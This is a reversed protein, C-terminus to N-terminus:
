HPTRHAPVEHSTPDLAGARWLARRPEVIASGSVDSRKGSHRWAWRAHESLVTTSPVRWDSELNMAPSQRHTPAMTSVRGTVVSPWPGADGCRLINVVKSDKFVSTYFRVADEANRDFWLCPSIKQM